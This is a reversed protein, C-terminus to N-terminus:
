RSCFRARYMVPPRACTYGVIGNIEFVIVMPEAVVFTTVTRVGIRIITSTTASIWSILWVFIPMAIRETDVSKSVLRRMPILTFLTMEMVKIM